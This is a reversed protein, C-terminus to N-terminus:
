RKGRKKGFRLAFGLLAIVAFTTIAAIAIWQNTTLQEAVTEVVEPTETVAELIPLGSM